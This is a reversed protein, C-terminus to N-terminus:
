RRVDPLPTLLSLGVSRDLELRSLQLELDIGAPHVLGDEDARLQVRREHVGAERRDVIEQRHEVVREVAVGLQGVDTGARTEPDDGRLLLDVAREHAPIRELGDLVERRRRVGGRHAHVPEAVAVVLFRARLVVATPVVRLPALRVVPAPPGGDRERADRRAEVGVAHVGDEVHDHGVVADVEGRGDARRDVRRGGPRPGAHAAVPRAAVLDLDRVRAVDDADVAVERAERGSEPYALADLLPLENGVDALCPAHGSRMQVEADAPGPTTM